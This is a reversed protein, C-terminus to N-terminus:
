NVKGKKWKKVQDLVVEANNWIAVAEEALKLRESLIGPEMLVDRPTIPEGVFQYCGDVSDMLKALADVTAELLDMIDAQKEM